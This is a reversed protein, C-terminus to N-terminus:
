HRWLTSANTQSLLVGTPVLGNTTVPLNWYLEQFPNQPHPMRAHIWWRGPPVEVRALGATDTAIHHPDRGSREVAASLLAPYAAFATREWRRVSDAARAARQALQRDDRILTRLARDREAQRQALRDHLSRLRDYAERYAPAARNKGRLSDALRSVSDRTARWAADMGGSSPRDHLRYSAMAAELDPFAPRPERAAGALSDLLADPDVPLITVELDALPAAAEGFARIALQREATCACLLTVTTILRCM